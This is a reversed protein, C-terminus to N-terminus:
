LLKKCSILGFYGTINNEHVPKITVYYEPYYNNDSTRLTNRTMIYYDEGLELLQNNYKIYLNNTDTKLLLSSFKIRPYMIPTTTTETGAAVQIWNAGISAINTHSTSITGNNGITTSYIELRPQGNSSKMRTLEDESMTKAGILMLVPKVVNNHKIFKILAQSGVHFISLDKISSWDYDETYSTARWVVSYENLNTPIGNPFVANLDICPYYELEQNIGIEYYLTEEDDFPENDWAVIADTGSDATIDSNSITKSIIHRDGYDNYDEPQWYGERLAPGM